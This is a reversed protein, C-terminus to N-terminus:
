QRGERAKKLRDVAVALGPVLCIGWIAAKGAMGSTLPVSYTFDLNVTASPAIGKALGVARMGNEKSLIFDAYAAPKTVRIIQNGPSLEIKLTYAGIKESFYNTFKYSVSFHEKGNDAAVKKSSYFGPCLFQATFEAPNDKDAAKIRFFEVSGISVPELGTEALNRGTIEGMPTMGEASCIVYLYGDKDPEGEVHVTLIGDEAGSPTFTEHYASVSVCDAAQTQMASAFVGTLIAAM